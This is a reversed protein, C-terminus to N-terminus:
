SRSALLYAQLNLVFESINIDRHMSFLNEDNNFVTGFDFINRSRLISICEEKETM